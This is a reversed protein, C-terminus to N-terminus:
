LFNSLTEGLLAIHAVRDVAFLLCKIAIYGLMINMRDMENMEIKQM